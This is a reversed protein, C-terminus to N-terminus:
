TSPPNVFLEPQREPLPEPSSTVLAGAMDLLGIIRHIQSRALDDPIGVVERVDETLDGITAQGDIVDLMVRTVADLAVPHRRIPSWLCTEYGVDRRLLDARLAPQMRPELM